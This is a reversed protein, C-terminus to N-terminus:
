RSNQIACGRCAVAVDALSVFDLSRIYVIADYYDTTKSAYVNLKTESGRGLFINLTLEISNNILLVGSLRAFLLSKSIKGGRQSEHGM